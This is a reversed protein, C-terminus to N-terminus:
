AKGRWTQTLPRTLLDQYIHARFITYVDDPPIYTPPSTTYSIELLAAIALVMLTLKFWM